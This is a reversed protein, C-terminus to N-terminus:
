VRDCRLGALTQEMADDMLHLFRALPFEASCGTCRFM